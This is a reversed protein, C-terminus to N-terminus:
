NSQKAAAQRRALEKLILDKERRLGKAVSRNEQARRCLFPLTSNVEGYHLLKYTLYEEQALLLHDIFCQM